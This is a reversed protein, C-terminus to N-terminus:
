TSIDGYLGKIQSDFNLKKSFIERVFKEGNNSIKQCLIPDKKLKNIADILGDETGDYPYYDRFKKLELGKYFDEVAILICGCAMAEFAGVAPLGVSEEGVIVFKYENYTQVIDFSFYKKQSSGFFKFGFYKKKGEWESILTDIKDFNKDFLLRRIPHYSIMGTYSLYDKYLYRPKERSLNHVTGTALTQKKREPFNKIKFFRKQIEFPIILIKKNYWHFFWQFYNNETLDSDAALYLKRLKSLNDSKEKTLIFYHSLHAIANCKNLIKQRLHFAGKAIKYSFFFIIDNDLIDKEKIIKYNNINKNINSWIMFEFRSIIMRLFKPFFKFIFDSIFISISGDVIIFLQNSSNKDSLLYSYKKLAKRRILKFHPPESLFDDVHPNYFIIKRKIM